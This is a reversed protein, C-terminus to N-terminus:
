RRPATSSLIIDGSFTEALIRASGRGLTFTLRRSQVGGIGHEGPKLIIPFDSEVSGSYTSVSLQAGADPPLHLRVEGSHTDFEYRGADLVQGAFLINGSTSHTRVQKSSIDHLDLDGSVTEIEVDGRAGRLQLDGSVTRVTLYGKVTQVTVDGSLTEIDLRDGADRVDVDGSQAHIEIEGQVGHVGVSGSWTTATVRSGAPVTLEFRGDSCGRGSAPELTARGGSSTFRIAGTGTRARVRVESREAATVLITGGPCSVLVTGHADFAVATDLSGAADRARRERDRDHREDGQDRQEQERARREQERELARDRTEQAKEREREVRQRERERASTSQASGPAAVALALVVFLARHLHM